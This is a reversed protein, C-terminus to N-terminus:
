AGWRYEAMPLVCHVQAALVAGDVQYISVAIIVCGFRVLGRVIAMRVVAVRKNLVQCQIGLKHHIHDIHTEVTRLSIALMSAIQKDTKAECVARLIEAERPTLDGRDMLTTEFEMVM